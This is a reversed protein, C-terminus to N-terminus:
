KFQREESRGKPRKTLNRQKQGRGYNTRQWLDNLAMRTSFRGTDSTCLQVLMERIAGAADEPIIHWPLISVGLIWSLKLVVFKTDVALTKRHRQLLEIEEIFM